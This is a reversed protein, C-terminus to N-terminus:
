LTRVGGQDTRCKFDQNAIAKGDAAIVVALLRRGASSAVINFTEGLKETLATDGLDGFL